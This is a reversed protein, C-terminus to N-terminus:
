HLERWSSRGPSARIIPYLLPEEIPAGVARGLCGIHTRRSWDPSLFPKGYPPSPFFKKRVRISVNKVHSLISGFDESVLSTQSDPTWLITYCNKDSVLKRRVEGLFKGSPLFAPPFFKGPPLEV